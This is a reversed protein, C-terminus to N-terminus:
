WLVVVCDRGRSREEFLRSPLASQGASMASLYKGSNPLFGSNLIQANPAYLPMPAKKPTRVPPTVAWPLRSKMWLV